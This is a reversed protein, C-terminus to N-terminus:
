GDSPATGAALGLQDLLPEVGIVEMDDLWGPRTEIWREAELLLKNERFREGDYQQFAVGNPVYGLRESVLRSADNGDMYGSEAALAGLHTFAFELMMARARSGLGSGRRGPVIFSGSAVTRRVPFGSTQMGQVGIPEGDVVISFSLGWAEPKMEARQRWQYQLELRAMGESTDARMNTFLQPMFHQQEAPLLEPIWEGVLLADADTVTRLVLDDHRLQLVAAPWAHALEM